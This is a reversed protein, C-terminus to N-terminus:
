GSYSSSLTFMSRIYNSYFSSTVAIKGEECCYMISNTQVDHTTASRSWPNRLYYSCTDGNGDYYIAGSSIFTNFEAYSMLYFYDRTTDSNDKTIATVDSDVTYSSDSGVYYDISGLEVPEIFDSIDSETLGLYEGTQVKERISSTFYNNGYNTDFEFSDGLATEQVFLSKGPQLTPTSYSSFSSYKTKGDLSVLRWKTGIKKAGNLATGLNVYYYGNTEDSLLTKQNNLSEDNDETIKVNYSFSVDEVKTYLDKVSYILVLNRCSSTTKSGDSNTVTQNDATTIYNLTDTTQFILSNRNDGNTVDTTDILNAKVAKESNLNQVNICTFYIWYKNEENESDGYNIPIVTENSTSSPTWESSCVLNMGDTDEAETLTASEMSDMLMEGYSKAFTTKDDASLNSWEDGIFVSGAEDRLEDCSFCLHFIASEDNSSSWPIGYTKTTVKVDLNPAEYTIKGSISYEVSTASIVGFCLIAISLCM